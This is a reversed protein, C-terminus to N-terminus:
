KTKGRAYRTSQLITSLFTPCDKPCLLRQKLWLPYILVSPLSPKTLTSPLLTSAHMCHTPSLQHHTSFHVGLGERINLSFVLICCSMKQSRGNATGSSAFSFISTLFVYNATPWCNELHSFPALCYYYDLFTTYHTHIHLTPLCPTSIQLISFPGASHNRTLRLSLTFPSM